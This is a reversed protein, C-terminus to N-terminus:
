DILLSCIDICQPNSRDSPCLSHLHTGSERVDAQISNMTIDPCKHQLPLLDGFESPSSGGQPLKNFLTLYEADSPDCLANEDAKVLTDKSPAVTMGDHDISGHGKSTSSVHLKPGCTIGRITCITAPLTPSIMFASQTLIVCTLAFTGETTATTTATTFDSHGCPECGRALIASVIASVCMGVAAGVIAAFGITSM